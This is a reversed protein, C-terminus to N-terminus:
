GITCISTRRSNQFWHSMIPEVIPLSESNSATVLSNRAPRRVGSTSETNSMEWPLCANSRSALPWCNPFITTRIGSQHGLTARLVGRQLQSLNALLKGRPFHRDARAATNGHSAAFDSASGEAQTVCPLAVPQDAAFTTAARDEIYM